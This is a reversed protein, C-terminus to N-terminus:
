SEDKHTKSSKRELYLKKIKGYLSLIILFTGLFLSVDSAITRLNMVNVNVYLLLSTGFGISPNKSLFLSLNHM